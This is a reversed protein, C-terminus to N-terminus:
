DSFMRLFCGGAGGAGYPNGQTAVQDSRTQIDNLGSIWENVSEGSAKWALDEKTQELVRGLLRCRQLGDKAMEGFDVVTVYNNDLLKVARLFMEPEIGEYREM